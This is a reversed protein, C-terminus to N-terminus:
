DNRRIRTFHPGPPMKGWIGDGFTLTGSTCDFDVEVEPYAMGPQGGLFSVSGLDARRTLASVTTADRTLRYGIKKDSIIRWDGRASGAFSLLFSTKKDVFVFTEINNLTLNFAGDCQFRYDYNGRRYWALAEGGYAKQIQTVFHWKMLDPTARWGGTLCRGSPPLSVSRVGGDEKEIRILPGQEFTTWLGTFLVEAEEDCVPIDFIGRLM